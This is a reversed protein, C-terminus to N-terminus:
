EAASSVCKSPYKDGHYGNSREIIRRELAAPFDAETIGGQAWAKHLAEKARRDLPSDFAAAVAAWKSDSCSWGSCGLFDEYAQAYATLSRIYETKFSPECPSLEYATAAQIAALRLEDRKANQPDQEYQRVLEEHQKKISQDPSGFSALIRPKAELSMVPIYVPFGHAAWSVLAFASAFLMATTLAFRTAGMENVANSRSSIFVTVEM